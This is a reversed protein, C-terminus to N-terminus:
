VQYGGSSRTQLASRVLARYTFFRCIFGVSFLKQPPICGGLSKAQAPEMMCSFLQGPLFRTVTVVGSAFYSMRASLAFFRM